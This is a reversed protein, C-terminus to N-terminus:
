KNQKYEELKKNLYNEENKYYIAFAIFMLVYIIIFSVTFQWFVTVNELFGWRCFFSFGVVTLYTLACHVAIKLLPKLESTQFYHLGSFVAAMGFLQWITIIEMTREGRFFFSGISALIILAMFYIAMLFKLEAIHHMANKM